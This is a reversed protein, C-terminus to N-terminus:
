KRWQCRWVFTDPGEALFGMKTWFDRATYRVRDAIIVEYERQFHEIVLRAFGKKEFEPYIMISFVTFRDSEIRCRLKGVQDGGHELDFWDYDGIEARRPLQSLELGPAITTTM